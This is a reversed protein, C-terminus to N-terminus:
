LDLAFRKSYLSMYETIYGYMACSCFVLHFVSVACFMYANWMRSTTFQFCDIFRCLKLIHCLEFCGVNCSGTTQIRNVGNVRILHWTSNHPLQTHSLSILGIFLLNLPNPNLMSLWQGASTRKLFNAYSWLQVWSGAHLILTSTLHTESTSTLFIRGSYFLLDSSNGNTAAAISRHM